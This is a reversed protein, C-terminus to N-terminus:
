SIVVSCERFEVFELYVCAASWVKDGFIEPLRSVAQYGM